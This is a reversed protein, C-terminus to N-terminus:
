FVTESCEFDNFPLYNPFIFQNKENYYYNLYYNDNTNYEVYIYETKTNNVSNIKKFNYFYVFNIKDDFNLSIEEILPKQHYFVSLFAGTVFGGLHGEWSIQENIGPVIGWIMNGYLFIVSLALAMFDKRKSLVGSFFHFAALGYIVGSAGIHYSYRGILWTILGSFFYIITFIKFWNKQYFYILGFFLILFPISNSLIHELNGHLFPSFIVGKLGTLTRPLIGFESFKLHLTEEFFIVLWMISLFIFSIFLSIKFRISNKKNTKQNM